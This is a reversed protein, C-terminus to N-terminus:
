EDKDGFKFTILPMLTWSKLPYFEKVASEFFLTGLISLGECGSISLLEDTLSVECLLAEIVVVKLNSLDVKFSLKPLAFFSVVIKTSSAVGDAEWRLASAELRFFSEEGISDPLRGMLVSKGIM